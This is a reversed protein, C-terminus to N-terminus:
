PRVRRVTRLVGNPMPVQAASTTESVAATSGGPYGAQYTIHVANPVFQTTVYGVSTVSQLPPRDLYIAARPEDDAEITKEFCVYVTQTLCHPCDDTHSNPDSM